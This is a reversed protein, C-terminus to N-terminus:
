KCGGIVDAIEDMGKAIQHCILAYTVGACIAAAFLATTTHLM